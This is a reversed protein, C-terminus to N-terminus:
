VYDKRMLTSQDPHGIVKYGRETLSQTMEEIRESTTLSNSEFQVLRPYYEPCSDYYSVLSKIIRYDHGETDIKVFDIQGINYQNMIQGFTKVPVTESRILHLLGRKTLERVVTPHEVEVSNCGKIWWPLGHKHIDEPAVYYVVITGESSNTGESDSVACHVKTVNSRNPLRNLYLQLADISIGNQNPPAKQLLTDFDATGIELFDYDKRPVISRIGAMLQDGYYTHSYIDSTLLEQLKPNDVIEVELGCARAELVCREGGGDIRCPCYCIRSKNYYVALEDYPIYSHVEVGAEVLQNRYKSDDALGFAIKKGEKQLLLWPQKYGVISGVFIYDYEKDIDMPKMVNTDIGFAHKANDMHTLQAFTQYWETEYFFYDFWSLENGQPLKISSICLALKTQKNNINYIQSLIPDQFGFKLLAVDYKNWEIDNINTDVINIRTVDCSYHHKLHDVAATFGDHWQYYKLSNRAIRYVIAVRVM